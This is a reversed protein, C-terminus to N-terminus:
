TFSTISKLVAKLDKEVYYLIMKPDSSQEIVNALATRHKGMMQSSIMKNITPNVQAPKLPARRKRSKYWEM